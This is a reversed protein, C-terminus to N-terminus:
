FRKNGIKILINSNKRLQSIYSKIKIAFERRFIMDEIEDLNNIDINPIEKNDIIKFIYYSGDLEIPNSIQNLSLNSIEDYLKQHLEGEKIWFEEDMSIYDYLDSFERSLKLFDAGSQLESFLTEAIQSSNDSKAIYIEAIKFSKITKKINNIELIENIATDSVIIKPVINEKIFDNFLIKIKLQDRYEQYSINNNIMDNKLREPDFNNNIIMQDVRQEIQKSNISINNKNLDLLQLKENIIQQLIKDLIIQKQSQSKIKIKSLFLSINYRNELDINTIIHNDIKAIIKVEKAFSLDNVFM